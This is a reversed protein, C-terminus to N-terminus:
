INSKNLFTRFIEVCKVRLQKSARGLVYVFVPSVASWSNNEDAEFAASRSNREAAETPM